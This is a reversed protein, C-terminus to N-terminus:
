AAVIRTKSLRRAAKEFTLMQDAIGVYEAHILRDVLGPQATALHPTTLVQAAAGSSEIGSTRFFRALVEIADAKPLHFHHQLAFYMESAVLDSVMVTHQTDLLKGVMALAALAM